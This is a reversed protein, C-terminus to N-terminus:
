ARQFEPTTAAMKLVSAARERPGQNVAGEFRDQEEVFEILATRSEDSIATIALQDFVRDVIVDPPLGGTKM